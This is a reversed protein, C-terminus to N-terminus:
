VYHTWRPRILLIVIVIVPNGLYSVDTLQPWAFYQVLGVVTGFAGSSRLVQLLLLNFSTTTGWLKTNLRSAFPLACFAVITTTCVHYPSTKKLSGGVEMVFFFRSFIRLIVLTYVLNTMYHHILLMLIYLFRQGQLFKRNLSILIRGIEGCIEDSDKRKVTM